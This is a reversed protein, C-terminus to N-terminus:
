RKDIAAPPKKPNETTRGLLQSASPLIQTKGIRPSTSPLIQPPIRRGCVGCRSSRRPSRSFKHKASSRRLPRSFKHKASARRPPRSFKHKASARRPSRSFKRRSVGGMDGAACRRSLRIGCTGESANGGRVFPRVVLDRRGAASAGPKGYTCSYVNADVRRRERRM